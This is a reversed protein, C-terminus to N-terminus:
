FSSFRFSKYIISCVCVINRFWITIHTPVLTALLFDAQQFINGQIAVSYSKLFNM